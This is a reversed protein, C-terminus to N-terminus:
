IFFLDPAKFSLLLSTIQSAILSKIAIIKGVLTLNRKNWNKIIGDMNFNESPLQGRDQCIGPINDSNVYNLLDDIVRLNLHIRKLGFVLKFEHDIGFTKTKKNNKPINKSINCTIQLHCLVVGSEIM